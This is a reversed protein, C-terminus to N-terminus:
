KKKREKRKTNLKSRLELAAVLGIAGELLIPNTAFVIGPM